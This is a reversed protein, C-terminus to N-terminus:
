NSHYNCDSVQFHLGFWTQPKDQLIDEIMTVGYIKLEIDHSHIMVIYASLLYLSPSYTQIITHGDM